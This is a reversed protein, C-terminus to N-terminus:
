CKRVMLSVTTWLIHEKSRYESHIQFNGHLERAPFLQWISSFPLVAHHECAREREGYKIVLGIAVYYGVLLLFNSLTYL